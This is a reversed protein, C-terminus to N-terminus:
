VPDCVTIPNENLPAVIAAPVPTKVTKDKLSTGAAVVSNDNPLKPATVLASPVTYSALAEPLM